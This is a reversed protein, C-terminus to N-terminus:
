RKKVKLINDVRDVVIPKLTNSKTGIVSVHVPRKSKMVPDDVYLSYNGTPNNELYFKGETITRTKITDRTMQNVFLLRTGAIKITDFKKNGSINSTTYKTLIQGQLMAQQAFGYSTCLMLFLIANLKKM